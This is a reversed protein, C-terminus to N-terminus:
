FVAAGDAGARGRITPTALSRRRHNSVGEESQDAVGREDLQRAKRRLRPDLEVRLELALIRGARDLVTDRKRHDLGGLELGAGLEELRRAAVRADREREDRPELAVPERAHHG